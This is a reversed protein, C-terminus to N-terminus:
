DENQGVKKTSSDQPEGPELLGEDKEDPEKEMKYLELDYDYGAKSALTSKSAIKIDNHIKLVKAQEEPNEKVVEPFIIDFPIETTKMVKGEQELKKLLNAFTQRSVVFNQKYIL